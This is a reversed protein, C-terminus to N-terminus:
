PGNPPMRLAQYEAPGGLRNWPDARCALRRRITRFSSVQPNLSRLAANAQEVAKDHHPASEFLLGIYPGSHTVVVGLAGVQQRLALVAELHRRPNRRQNMMASRTAIRGLAVLDGRRFVEGVEELLGRYTQRESLTYGPCHRNYTLTDIEGGEDIAVIRLAQPLPGFRRLLRVKRHLFAVIGDYMVGDTPEIKRLLQFLIDLDLSVGLANCVARATAVADASSSALGKGEPLESEIRLVGVERAGHHRLLGRALTHSKRKRGSIVQLSRDSPSVSFWARSCRNIPLTVLFHNEAGSLAGQLL